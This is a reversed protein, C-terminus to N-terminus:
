LTIPSIRTVGDDYIRVCSKTPEMKSSFQGVINPDFHSVYDRFRRANINSQRKM